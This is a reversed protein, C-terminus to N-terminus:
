IGVNEMYGYFRIQDPRNGTQLLVAKQSGHLHEEATLNAPLTM